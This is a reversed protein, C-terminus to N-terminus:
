GTLRVKYICRSLTRYQGKNTRSSYLDYIMTSYVTLQGELKFSCDTYDVDLRVRLFGLTELVELHIHRHLRWRRTMPGSGSILPLVFHIEVARRFYMSFVVHDNECSSKNNKPMSCRGYFQWCSYYSNGRIPAYRGDIGHERGRTYRELRLM